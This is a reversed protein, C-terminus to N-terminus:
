RLEKKIKELVEVIDASLDLQYDANRKNEKAMKRVATTSSYKRIHLDLLAKLKEKDTLRAEEEEKKKKDIFASQHAMHFEESSNYVEAGGEVIPTIEMSQKQSDTM